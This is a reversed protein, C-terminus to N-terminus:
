TIKIIIGDFINRITHLSNPKMFMSKYTNTYITSEFQFDSGTGAATTAPRISDQNSKYGLDVKSSLFM